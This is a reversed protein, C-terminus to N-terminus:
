PQLTGLVEPVLMRTAYLTDCYEWSRQILGDRCEFFQCFYNEYADGRATKARLRFQVAVLPGEALVNEVEMEASGREYVSLQAVFELMEARSFAGAPMGPIGPRPFVLACDQALHDAMRPDGAQILELFRLVMAKNAAAAEKEEQLM